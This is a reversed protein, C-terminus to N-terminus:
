VKRLIEARSKFGLDLLKDPLRRASIQNKVAWVTRKLEKAMEKNTHGSLYMTELVMNQADTWATGRKAKPKRPVPKSVSIDQVLLVYKSFSMDIM